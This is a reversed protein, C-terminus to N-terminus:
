YIDVYIDIYIDVYIIIGNKEHKKLTKIYIQWLLSLHKQIVKSVIVGTGLIDNQSM